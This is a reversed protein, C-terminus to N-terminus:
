RALGISARKRDQHLAAELFCDSRQRREEGRRQDIVCRHSVEASILAPHVYPVNSCVRRPLGMM